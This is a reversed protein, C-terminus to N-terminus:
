LIILPLPLMKKLSEETQTLFLLCFLIIYFFLLTNISRPYADLHGLVIEKSLKLTNPIKWALSFSGPEVWEKLKDISKEDKESECYTSIDNDTIEHLQDSGPICSVRNISKIMKKPIIIFTQAEKCEGISQAPILSKENHSWFLYSFEWAYGSIGFLKKWWPDEELFNGKLYLAFFIMGKDIKDSNKENEVRNLNEKNNKNENEVEEFELDLEIKGSKDNFHYPFKRQPTEGEKSINVIRFRKLDDPKWCAGIESAYKKNTKHSLDEIRIVEVGKATNMFMRLEKPVDVNQSINEPPLELEINFILKIKKGFEEPHHYISVKLFSIQYHPAHIGELELM